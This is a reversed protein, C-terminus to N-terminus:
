RPHLRGFHIGQELQWSAADAAATSVFYKVDDRRACEMRNTGDADHRCGHIPHVKNETRRAFQPAGGPEDHSDGVDRAAQVVRSM